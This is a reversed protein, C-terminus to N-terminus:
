RVETIRHESEFAMTLPAGTALYESRNFVGGLYVISIEGVGFGIKVSLKIDQYIPTNNLQGQIDL